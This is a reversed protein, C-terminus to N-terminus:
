WRHYIELFNQLFTVRVNNGFSILLNEAFRRSFPSKNGATFLIKAGIKEMGCRKLFYNVTMALYFKIKRLVRMLYFIMCLPYESGRALHKLVCALRAAIVDPNNKMALLNEPMGALNERPWERNEADSEPNETVCFLYKEM